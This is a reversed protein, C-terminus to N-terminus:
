KEGGRESDITLAHDEDDAILLEVKHDSLKKKWQEPCHRDTIIMSVDSLSCIKAFTTRGFKSSDALVIVDEARQIMKKSNSAGHLDYDSIGDNISVGGAAVFAKDAKLENLMMEALPGSTFKQEAEYEGGIFITKGHFGEMALLLVPVSPTVITVNKKGNLFRVIEYATSGHGIFIVDGDEVLGAALRCIERKEKTNMATKQDFPPEVSNKAKVAGGYVKKVLGEKELRELDRRITEGSVNLIKEVSSVKVKEDVELIELITKRREEFSLSM